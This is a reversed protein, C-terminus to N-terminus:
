PLYKKMQKTNTCNYFYEFYFSISIRDLKIKLNMATNAARM